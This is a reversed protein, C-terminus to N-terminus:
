VSSLDPMDSFEPFVCHPTDLPPDEYSYLLLAPLSL